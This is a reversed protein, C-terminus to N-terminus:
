LMKNMSVPFTRNYERLCAIVIIAILLIIIIVILAVFISKHFYRRRFRFRYRQGDNQSFTINCLTEEPTFLHNLTEFM